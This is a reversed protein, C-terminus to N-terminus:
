SLVADLDITQPTLSRASELMRLCAVTARAGDRVTVAPQRGSRLGEFFAELQAAYGKEGWLRRSTRRLATKVTLRKFDEASVGVGQAFVEVHEGGSTKSGVTCYTLNGISGDAFRFSAVVNNEGIPDREGTPLCYASVGVPESELLWYMLDVFHCGEGLVAGGFTPDAAWFSGVLGPSNMRCNVVAPTTRRALLRKQEAYFPAFRRNFGVTLQRGTERVAHYLQRCEDDTLAMPKEIFVHKGARLAALAQAFHHEHRTVILVVDVEPDRLVEEYDSCSYAAGFREAYSKGRAGSASHVARLSAGPIKRLNPLHVWRALNGAGTLAVRLGAGAVPAPGAPVAVKRRPEFAPSEPEDTAPYRLLVALSNAAPNMITRYAEAADELAFQHSILPQLEVRGLAVQRLFEEMNRNETWRVYAYPYDQGQKEYAPDYSGPGYARSMLLQLEKIYMEDRPLDLPMAGVVVVRGRDRCLAIAQQVPAPSKSAAAVIVCDVGRGGTLANVEQPTGSGGLLAHDAGLRRALEIREPKIDIAFVRGGQARALQAVLQGVLGLGIVAVTDGLGVEAIRVSNMAISGLTTFCAHEFAVGEPVRVVLNRGAVITEGHGTREGGYAVRDGVELDAVTPHKAVVLGAGSYGLAAYESFKARVEAATRLPGQQKMVEWVKRLHSPNEAVEKVVGDQHIDATETGSSILSYFPRILVHHSGAVPDPVEGVVIDKLGKRLVQKM